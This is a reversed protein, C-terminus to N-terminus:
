YTTRRAFRRHLLPAAVLGFVFLVAGGGIIRDAVASHFAHRAAMLETPDPYPIGAFALDYAFGAFVVGLGPFAIILSKLIRIM